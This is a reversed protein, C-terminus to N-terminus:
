NNAPICVQVETGMGPMSIIRLHGGVSEAREQMVTLGHSSNTNRFQYFAIADFGCGDDNISVNLHNNEPAITVKVNRADAHRRVNALAEQCIRLLEIEATTSLKHPSPMVSLQFLIGTNQRLHQLYQRLNTLFEGNGTYERLLELSERADYRAEETLRLLEKVEDLEIGMTKLRNELLQCQWCLGSLTQAVGDHLERSLRQRETIIFQSQMQHRLNSNVLYPLVAILCASIFYVLLFSSDVLSFQHSYWPNMLHSSTIIVMSLVATAATLRASLFLSASLIPTLSFLIFPSAMGGTLFLLMASFALDVALLASSSWGRYFWGTPHLSKFLSYLAAVLLLPFSGPLDDSILFSDLQVAAVVLALLRFAGLLYRGSIKM